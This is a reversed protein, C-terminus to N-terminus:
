QTDGVSAGRDRHLLLDREENGARLFAAGAREVRIEALMRLQAERALLLQMEEVLIPQERMLRDVVPGIVRLEMGVWGLMQQALGCGSIKIPRASDLADGAVVRRHAEDNQQAIRDRARERVPVVLPEHMALGKSEQLGNVGIGLALAGHRRSTRLAEGVDSGAEVASLELPQPE